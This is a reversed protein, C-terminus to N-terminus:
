DIRSVEYGEKRILEIVGVDGPLHLAGVGIFANGDVLAPTITDMWARNRNSLASELFADSRRRAGSLGQQESYWIGFEYIAMTEGSAYLQQMTEHINEDDPVSVGLDVMMGALDGPSMAELANLSQEYTELGFNPVGNEIGHRALDDDMVTEGAQIAQFQCAPFGLIAFLMWGRMQEAAELPIGRKGLAEELVPLASAPVRRSLPEQSVDYIIELPNALMDSQMREQEELSIEFWAGRASAIVDWVQDPITKAAETDHYTGFLYSPPLGDKDIRWFRGQANVSQHAREFIADHSARDAVALRALIDKGSCEAMASGATLALAASILSTILRRMTRM